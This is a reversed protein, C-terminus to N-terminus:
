SFLTKSFKNLVLGNDINSLNSDEEVIFSAGNKEILCRYYPDQALPHKEPLDTVVEVSFKAAIGRAVELCNQQVVKDESWMLLISMPYSGELYDVWVYADENTEGSEMNVFRLKISTQLLELLDDIYIIESLYFLMEQTPM